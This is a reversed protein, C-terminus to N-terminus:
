RELHARVRRGARLVLRRRNSIVAQVARLPATLRWYVSGEIGAIERELQASEAALAPVSAALPRLRAQEAAIEQMLAEAHGADPM